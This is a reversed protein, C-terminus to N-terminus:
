VHLDIRGDGLRAPRSTPQASDEGTREARAASGGFRGGGGDNGDPRNDGRLGFNLAGSDARLGADQLARELGRADRQLLDLTEPRDARVQASVQGDPGVELKVEIRGLEAPKLNISIEDKGAAVAKKINVAIQDLASMRPLQPLAPTGATNRLANATGPTTGPQIAFIQHTGETPPADGASAQLQAAFSATVSAAQQAPAASSAPVAALLNAGQGQGQSTQGQGAQSFTGGSASQLGGTAPGTGTAANAGSGPTRLDLEAADGDATQAALAASAALPQEVQPRVPATAVTVKIPNQTQSQAAQDAGQGPDVDAKPAAAIQPTTAAPLKKLALTAAEADATADAAADALAGGPKGAGAEVAACEDTGASGARGADKPLPQRQPEIAVAVVSDRDEDEVDNVDRRARKDGDDALEPRDGVADRVAGPAPVQLLSADLEGEAAPVRASAAALRDFLKNLVDGFVAASSAAKAKGGTPASTQTRTDIGQTEM